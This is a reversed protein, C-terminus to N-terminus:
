QLLNINALRVVKDPNNSIFTKIADASNLHQSQNYSKGLWKWFSANDVYRVGDQFVKSYAGVIAIDKLFEKAESDILGESLQNERLNPM